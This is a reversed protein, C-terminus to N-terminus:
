KPASFWILISVFRYFHNWTSCCEFIVFHVLYERWNTQRLLSFSSNENCRCQRRFLERSRFCIIKNVQKECDSMAHQRRNTIRNQVAKGCIVCNWRFSFHLSSFFLVATSVSYSIAIIIDDLTTLLDERSLDISVVSKRDDTTKTWSTDHLILPFIRHHLSSDALFFIDKKAFSIKGCIFQFSVLIVTLKKGSIFLLFFRFFHKWTSFFVTQSTILPNKFSTTEM